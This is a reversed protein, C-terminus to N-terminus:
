ERARPAAAPVRLRRPSRIGPSRITGAGEGKLRLAAAANRKRAGSPRLLLPREASASSDLQGVDQEKARSRRREYPHCPPWSRAPHRRQARWGRRARAGSSSARPAASPTGAAAASREPSRTRSCALRGSSSLAAEEPQPRQARRKAPHSRRACAQQPLPRSPPLPLSRGSLLVGDTHTHTQIHKHTHIIHAHLSSSLTIDFIRPKAQWAGQTEGQPCCRGRSPRLNLGIQSKTWASAFPSAVGQGSLVPVVEQAKFIAFHGHREYVVKWNAPPVATFERIVWELSLLYLWSTALDKWCWVQM